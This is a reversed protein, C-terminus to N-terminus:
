RYLAASEIYAAVADSVFGHISKGARVRARIETSSVDVRRTAIRRLTTGGGASRPGGRTLVVLEALQAIREPERWLPLQAPIDEGVLFFRTASPFRDAYSSLTEVTYSLGTRDIEIPDITFRSDAGLAVRLMALRQEASAEAGGIKLPHERAPVWVLRDLELADFADSGALLHGVHPPDFTGGLLGLRM